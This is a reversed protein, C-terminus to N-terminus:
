SYTVSIRNIIPQSSMHDVPIRKTLDGDFSQTEVDVVKVTRIAAMPGHSATLSSDDHSVSLDENRGLGVLSVGYAPRPLSLAVQRRGAVM